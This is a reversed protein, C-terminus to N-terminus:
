AHADDRRGRAHVRRPRVGAREVSAAHRHLPLHSTRPWRARPVAAVGAVCRARGARRRALRACDVSASSHAPAVRGLDHREGHVARHGRDGDRPRRRVRRRARQPRAAPLLGLRARGDAAAPSRARGSHAHLQAAARREARPVIGNAAEARQAAPVAISEPAPRFRRLLAYVTIAVSGVVTIEGLTDFGRFDVLIVNVVNRGGATSRMRSFSRRSCAPRRSADHDRVVAAGMGAASATALLADRVRRAKRGCRQAAAARRGRAAAAALALRALVAGDHRSRGRDAHARSRAGLAVRVHSCVVLGAGGVMILAALRHFKAQWAAGIACAAGGVWLAASCRISRRSRAARRRLWNGSPLAASGGGRVRQRRDARAADAAAALVALAGRQGRRADVAVNVIDFMRKSDFRSLLPTTALTRGRLICRSTSLRHRRRARRLEDAVAAHLRAVRRARVGATRAWSDGRGATHSCRGSRSRGAVVGVLLCAAM